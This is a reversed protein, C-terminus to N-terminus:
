HVQENDWGLGFRPLFSKLGWTKCASILAGHSVIAANVIRDEKERLNRLQPLLVDDWFTSIRSMFMITSEITAELAAGRTEEFPKGQLDGM